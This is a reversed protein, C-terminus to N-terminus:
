PLESIAFASDEVERRLERLLMSAPQLASVRKELQHCLTAAGMAGVVMSSGKLYHAQRRLGELDGVAILEEMKALSQQTDALYADSLSRVNDAHRQLPHPATTPDVTPAAAPNQINGAASEAARALVAKLKEFQVPRNLFANMGAALCEDARGSDEDATVAVIWPRHSDGTASRIRQAAQLGNLEPMLLDMLIADYVRRQAAEVAGKGNDVVDAQYGLNSLMMQMIEQNVPNDEALLIRLSSRAAEQPQVAPLQAHIREQREEPAPHYNMCFKDVL